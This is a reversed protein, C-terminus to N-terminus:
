SALAGFLRAPVPVPMHFEPHGLEECAKNYAAAALWQGGTPADSRLTAIRSQLDHPAMTWGKGELLQFKARAKQFADARKDFGFAKQASFSVVSLAALGLTWIVVVEPSATKTLLPVVTSGSLGACIFGAFLLARHIFRYSAENMDAFVIAYRVEAMLVPLTGPAATPASQELAMSGKEKRKVAEKAASRTPPQPRAADAQASSFREM